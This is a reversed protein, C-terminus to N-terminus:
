EQPKGTWSKPLRKVIADLNWGTTLPLVSAGIIALWGTIVNGAVLSPAAFILSIVMAPLVTTFFKRANFAEGSCLWGYFVRAFSAVQLGVLSIVAMEIQM